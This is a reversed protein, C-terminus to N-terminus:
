KVFFAGRTFTNRSTGDQYNIKAWFEVLGKQTLIGEFDTYTIEAQALNSNIQGTVNLEHLKFSASSVLRLHEFGRSVDNIEILTPTGDTLEPTYSGILVYSGNILVEVNVDPNNTTGVPRTIAIQEVNKNGVSEFFWVGDTLDTETNLDEDFPFYQLVQLQQKQGIKYKQLQVM